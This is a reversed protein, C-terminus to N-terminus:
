RWRRLWRRPTPVRTAVSGKSLQKNRGQPDWLMMKLRSKRRKTRRKLGGHDCSAFSRQSLRRGVSAPSELLSRTFHLGPYNQLDWFSLIELRVQASHKFSPPLTATREFTTLGGQDGKGKRSQRAGMGGELSKKWRDAFYILKFSLIYKQGWWSLIQLAVSIDMHRMERQQIGKRVQVYLPCTRVQYGASM